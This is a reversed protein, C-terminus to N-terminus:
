YQRITIVADDGDAEVTCKGNLIALYLEDPLGQWAKIIDMANKKAGKSRETWRQQAYQVIGSANLMSNGRLRVSKTPLLRDIESRVDEPEEAERVIQHPESPPEPEAPPRTALYQALQERTYRRLHPKAKVLALYRQVEEDETELLRDVVHAANM